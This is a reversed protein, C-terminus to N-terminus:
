QLTSSPIMKVVEYKREFSESRKGYKLMANNYNSLSNISVMISAKHMKENKKENEMCLITYIYLFVINKYM